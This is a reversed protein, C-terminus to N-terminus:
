KRWAKLRKVAEAMDATSGAFSFRMTAHGRAGDFDVGPTAAVGTELLMRRCFAVSDNTLRAVDAYVYFAGDTAILKDFGAGPLDNLLLARNEAYRRVNARCEDQADFAAVGAYQSLTPPSIFLNQALREIPQLLDEPVVLWGLRWGTMSFYKSFSNVVIAQDDIAAATAPDVGYTIGHYIEDSVFRIGRERCYGMLARLEAEPIVAGVPNSPSAVILGDLKGSARQAQELAAITPQFKTDAEMPVIVPAIGLASLINRYCPYGPSALAVRDGPDFATLFSLLFGGSSGTTIVIREAPVSAGYFERYHRAIRERLQPIGLALTYGILDTDLAARAAELVKRPARTSPQGVELHVVDAGSAAREAAARMVEMVIFPDIRGRASIKLAM